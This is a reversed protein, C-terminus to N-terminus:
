LAKEEIHKSIYISAIIGTALFEILLNLSFKMAPINYHNNLGSIPQRM